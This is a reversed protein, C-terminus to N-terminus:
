EFQLTLEQRKQVKVHFKWIVASGSLILLEKSVKIAGEVLTFNESLAMTVSTGSTRAVIQIGDPRRILEPVESNFGPLYFTTEENNAARIGNALELMIKGVGAYVLHFKPQGIPDLKEVAPANEVRPAKKTGQNEIELPRKAVASPVSM